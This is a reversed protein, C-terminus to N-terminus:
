GVLGEVLDSGDGAAGELLIVGRDDVKFIGLVENFIAFLGDGKFFQRDAEFRGGLRQM